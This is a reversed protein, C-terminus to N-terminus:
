LEMGGSENDSKYKGELIQQQNTLSEEDFCTACWWIVELGRKGYCSPDCVFQKCKRCKHTSPTQKCEICMGDRATEGSQVAAEGTEIADCWKDGEYDWANEKGDHQDSASSATREQEVQEKPPDHNQAAAKSAALQDEDDEDEDM